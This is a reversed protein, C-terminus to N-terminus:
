PRVPRPRGMSAWFLRFCALLFSLFLTEIVITALLLVPGTFLVEIWPLVGQFQAPLGATFYAVVTHAFAFAGPADTIADFILAAKLSLDVALNGNLALGVTFFELLNPTISLIGIILVTMLRATEASVTFPLPQSFASQGVYTAFALSPRVDFFWALVGTVFTLALFALLYLAIMGPRVSKMWHQALADIMQVDGFRWLFYTLSNRGAQYPASQSGPRPPRRPSPSAGLPRPTGPAWQTAGHPFPTQVRQGSYQGSPPQQHPTPPPPMNM